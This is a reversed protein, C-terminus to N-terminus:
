RRRPPVPLTPPPAVRGRRRPIVGGEQLRWEGHLLHAVAARRATLPDRAAIADVIARHERHVQQMFDGRRAENRKTVRMAERLYQELYALLRVFQPNGGCHAIERHFALDEALGDLGAATADDMARLARRLRAVGASGAREAALAAIEGEMVRRLEVVHLVADISDLVSTDFALPQQGTPRAVFVGSGQRSVLLGRSKIRQVAERVVSRSVGYEASLAAETPL